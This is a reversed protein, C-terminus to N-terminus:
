SEAGSGPLIMEVVTGVGDESSLNLRGGLQEAFRGAIALGLGKGAGNPRMSFLPEAARALVDPAMGTGSDRITLVVAGDTRALRAEIAGGQAVAEAANHLLEYVALDARSVDCVVNAPARAPEFSAAIGRRQLTEIADGVLMNFDVPAVDRADRGSFALLRQAFAAARAGSSRAGELYGDFQTVGLRAARHQMLELNGLMATLLNNFDHAIHAAFEELKDTDPPPPSRDTM